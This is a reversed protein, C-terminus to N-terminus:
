LLPIQRGLVETESNLLAFGRELCEYIRNREALRADRSTEVWASVVMVPLRGEDRHLARIWYYLPRLRPSPVWWPVEDPLWLRATSLHQLLRRRPATTQGIYRIERVDRPDSLSYIATGRPAVSSEDFLQSAVRVRIHQAVQSQSMM